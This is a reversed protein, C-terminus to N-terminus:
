EETTFQTIVKEIAKVISKEKKAYMSAMDRNYTMTMYILDSGIGGFDYIEGNDYIRSNFIIDLMDASENDRTLKTTLMIEYYTPQLIYKSEASIAELFLGTRELDPSSKPIVVTAGVYPNVSHYYRDQTDDLKPIPLIGFDVTMTRLNEVDAMRIWMFLASNAQFMRTMGNTFGEPKPDFFKMVHFCVEENYLYDYLRDLISFSEESNIFIVPLDDEDKAAIIGGCGNYFSSMTDRQYLLGYRDNDDLKGDGNVDSSINASMEILKDLTWKGTNSLGYPNELNFDTLLKKNFVMATTADNDMITYDSCLGFLKNAISLCEISSADYWPMELNMHPVTTLEVLAGSGALAAFTKLAVTALDVSGDAAKNAKNIVASPDLAQNSVIMLNYKEEVNRNRRFVADNIIEGNLEEAYIDRQAWIPITYDINVITIKAGEYDTNPLDPYIRTDEPETVALSESTNLNTESSTNDSCSILPILMFIILLLSLVQKM